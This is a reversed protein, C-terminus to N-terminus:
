MIPTLILPITQPYLLARKGKLPRGLVVESMPAHGKSMPTSEDEAEETRALRSLFESFRLCKHIGYCCVSMRCDRCQCCRADLFVRRVAMRLGLHIYPRSITVARMAVGEVSFSCIHWEDSRQPLFPGFQLGFRIVSPNRYWYMLRKGDIKNM